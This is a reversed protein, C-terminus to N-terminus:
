RSVRTRTQAMPVQEHPKVKFIWTQPGAWEMHQNGFHNQVCIKNSEQVSRFREMAGTTRSINCVM